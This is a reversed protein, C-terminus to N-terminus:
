PPAADGDLVIHGLGLGVEVGLKIKISGVTQSCYVLTVCLLSLCVSLPGIPYPTKPRGNTFRNTRHWRVTTRDTHSGFLDLM